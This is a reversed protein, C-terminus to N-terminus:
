RQRTKSKKLRKAQARLRRALLHKSPRTPKWLQDSWGSATSVDSSWTQQPEQPASYSCSAMLALAAVAVSTRRLTM